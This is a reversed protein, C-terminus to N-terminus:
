GLREEADKRNRQRAKRRYDIIRLQADRLSAWVKLRMTRENKEEHTQASAEQALRIVYGLMDRIEVRSADRLPIEIRVSKEVLQKDFESLEERGLPVVKDDEM